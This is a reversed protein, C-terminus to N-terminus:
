HLEKHVLVRYGFLGRASTMVAIVPKDNYKIEEEGKFNLMYPFDTYVRAETGAGSPNYGADVITVSVPLPLEHDEPHAVASVVTYYDVRQPAHFLYNMSLFLGTIILGWGLFSYAILEALYRNLRKFFPLHLLLVGAGSLFAINFISDIRILTLEGVFFIMGLGAFIGLLLVTLTYTNVDNKVKQYWLLNFM